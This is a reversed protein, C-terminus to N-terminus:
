VDTGNSNGLTATWSYNGSNRMRWQVFLDTYFGPGNAGAGTALAATAAQCKQNTSSISSSSLNSCDTPTSSGSGQFYILSSNCSGSYTQTPDYPVQTTVSSS